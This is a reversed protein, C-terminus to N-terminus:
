TTSRWLWMCDLFIMVNLMVSTCCKQSFLTKGLVSYLCFSQCWATSCMWSLGSDFLSKHVLYAPQSALATSLFAKQERPLCVSCVHWVSRALVDEFWQLAFAGDSVNVDVTGFCKFICAGCGSHHKLCDKDALNTYQQYILLTICACIYIVKYIPLVTITWQM